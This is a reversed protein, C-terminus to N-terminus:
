PGSTFTGYLFTDNFVLSEDGSELVVDNLVIIHEWGTITIGDEDYIPRNEVLIFGSVGRWDKTM